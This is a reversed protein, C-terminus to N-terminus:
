RPTPLNSWTSNILVHSLPTLIQSFFFYVSLCFYSYSIVVVLEVLITSFAFFEIVFLMIHDSPDGYSCSLLLFLHPRCFGCRVFPSISLHYRCDKENEM